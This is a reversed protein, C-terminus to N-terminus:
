SPPLYVLSKLRPTSILIPLYRFTKLYLSFTLYSHPYIYSLCALPPVQMTRRENAWSIPDQAVKNAAFFNDNKSAINNDNDNDDDNDDDNNDDSHGNCISNEENSDDEGREKEALDMELTEEIRRLLETYELEGEGQGQLASSDSLVDPIM